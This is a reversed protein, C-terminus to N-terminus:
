IGKRERVGSTRKPDVMPNQLSSGDTFAHKLSNSLLESLVQGYAVAQDVDIVIDDVDLRSSIRQADHGSSAITDEVVTKLYDRANISALDDSQHLTEHITM